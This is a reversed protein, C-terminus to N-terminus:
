PIQPVLILIYVLTLNIQSTNKRNWLLFCNVSREVPCMVKAFYYLQSGYQRANKLDM